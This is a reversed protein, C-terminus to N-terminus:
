AAGRLARMRDAAAQRQDATLVRRPPKVGRIPDFRDAPIRYFGGVGSSPEVPYFGKRELKRAHVPNNTWVQVFEDDRGVTVTTEQEARATM